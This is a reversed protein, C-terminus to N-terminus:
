RYVTTKREGRGVTVVVREEGAGEVSPSYEDVVLRRVTRPKVLRYEAVASLEILSGLQRVRIQKNKFGACSDIKKFAVNYKQLLVQVSKDERL